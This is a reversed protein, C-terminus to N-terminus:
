QNEKDESKEKKEVTKQESMMEKHEQNGRTGKLRKELKNLASARGYIILSDDERIYTEGDPTGLFNGDKRSIGLVIMGEDKLKANHLKKDCLWHKKAIPVESIRFEGSLRLLSYYDIADIKSYRNLLKDILYSFQRDVWRSSALNWLIIAAGVLLLIRIWTGMDRDIGTFGVILSAVGTAIGANGLIMLLQLIRRRVPHNVVKESEDTTFGVGTFASRAQFRATEKSLGTHMLAISAIRTILISFVVILIVSIIGFM